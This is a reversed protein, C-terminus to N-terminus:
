RCKRLNICEGHDYSARGSYVAGNSGQVRIAVMRSGLNHRYVHASVISGLVKGMCTKVTACALMPSFEERYKRDLRDAPFSYYASMRDPQSNWYELERREIDANHQEADQVPVTTGNPTYAKGHHVFAYDSM